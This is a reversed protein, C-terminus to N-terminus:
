PCKFESTMCYNLKLTFLMNVSEGKNFFFPCMVIDIGEIPLSVGQQSIDGRVRCGAM